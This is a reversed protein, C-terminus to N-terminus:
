PCSRFSKQIHVTLRSQSKSLFSRRPLTVVGNTFAKFYHFILMKRSDTLGDTLQMAVYLVAIFTHTREVNRWDWQLELCLLWCVACACFCV